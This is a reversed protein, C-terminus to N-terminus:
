DKTTIVVQEPSRPVQLFKSEGFGAAKSMATLQKATYADGQPTGALMMMSFQAPVPPSVRDENPVFELTLLRSQPEMAAHIKKLLEICTQEDFHHLFNTLLVLDFGTGFQVAFADGPLIKYRGEVGANRANRQAIQLVKPWDVAVIEAQPARKAVEIGFLGHGAAIDLVRKPHRGDAVSLEGIFQVAGAIMPVMSEAFVEWGPYEPETSAGTPLITTGTRVVKALDSFASMHQPSNLFQTVSCVCAPSRRNLFLRSELPLSYKSGNKTLFGEVTLYDCLIRVGRPSASLREAVADATESGEGIATFVDLDIAAKLAATKQFGNLADWIKEPSPAQTQENDFM